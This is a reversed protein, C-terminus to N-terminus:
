SSLAADPLSREQEGAENAPQGLAVDLEARPNSRRQPQRPVASQGPFTSCLAIILSTVVALARLLLRASIPRAKETHKVNPHTDM